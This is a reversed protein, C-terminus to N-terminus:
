KVELDQKSAKGAQNTPFLSAQDVTAHLKCTITATGLSAQTKVQLDHIVVTEGADVAGFDLIDFPFLFMKTVEDGTTVIDSSTDLGKHVPMLTENPSLLKAISGPSVSLEYVLNTLRVDGNNTVTVDFTGKEHPQLVTSIGHKVESVTVTVDNKVYDVVANRIDSLTIAAM